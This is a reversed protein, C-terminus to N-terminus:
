QGLVSGIFLLPTIAAFVFQFYLLSDTPSTSPSSQTQLPWQKARDPLASTVTEPRGSLTISSTSSSGSAVSNPRCGREERWRWALYCRLGDQLEVAGLGRPGVRLGLVDHVHREGGVEEPRGSCLPCRPRPHETFAVFTAAAVQWTNDGTNLWSPYPVPVAGALALLHM